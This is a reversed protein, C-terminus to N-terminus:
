IYASLLCATGPGPELSELITSPPSFRSPVPAPLIKGGVWHFYLKEFDVFKKKQRLGRRGWKELRFIITVRGWFHLFKTGRGLKEPGEEKSFLTSECANSDRVNKSHNRLSIPVGFSVTKAARLHTDRM